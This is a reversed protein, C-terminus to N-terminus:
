ELVVLDKASPYSVENITLNEEWVTLKKYKPNNLIDKSTDMNKLLVFKGNEIRYMVIVKSGAEKLKKLRSDFCVPTQCINVKNASIKPKSITDVANAFRNGKAKFNAPHPKPYKASAYIALLCFMMTFIIKTM